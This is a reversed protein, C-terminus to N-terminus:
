SRRARLRLAGFGVVGAVGAAALAAIYWSLSGGSSGGGTGTVPLAPEPEEECAFVGDVTTADIDVPGGLTADAFTFLSVQLPSSGEEDGCEFTISGLGTDGELGTATAGTLRVTDAAFDANCVSSAQTTSCGVATVVDPDYVIDITWAGLGPAEVGLAEVSVSGQEGPAVTESGVSATGAAAWVQSAVFVVGVAVVTAAGLLGLRLTKRGKM